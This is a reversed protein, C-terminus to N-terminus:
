LQGYCEGCLRTIGYEDYMITAYAPPLFDLCIDCKCESYCDKCLMGIETRELDEWYELEGCIDCEHYDSEIIKHNYMWSDPDLAPDAQYSVYGVSM